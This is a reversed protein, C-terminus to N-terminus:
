INQIRTVIEYNITKALTAVDEVTITSEGQSGILVVEDGIKVNSVHTVDLVCMNMMVRGRIPVKIGAVLAFGINSISRPIGDAYGVPIVATRTLSQTIFTADYGIGHHASIEKTEVIYTKWSLVPRLMLTPFLRRTEESPWLGYLGIGFRCMDLQFDAGLLAGATGSAHVLPYIGIERLGKKFRSLTNIQSVTLKDFARSEAGSFHTYLGEIHINKQKHVLALVRSMDKEQIGDRGLGSEICLHIRTPVSVKMRAFTTLMEVSTVSLSLRHVQASSVFNKQAPCLVLISAHTDITRVRIGEEITFVAYFDPKKKKLARVVKELGHGYANGKVVCMIKVKKGLVAKLIVYNASLARTSIEVNSHKWIKM